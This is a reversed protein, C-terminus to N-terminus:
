APRRDPFPPARVAPRLFQAGRPLARASWGELVLALDGDPRRIDAQGSLVALPPASGSDEQRLSAHTKSPLLSQTPAHELVTAVEVSSGFNGKATALGIWAVAVLLLTLLRGTRVLPPLSM